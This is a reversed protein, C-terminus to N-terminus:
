KSIYFRCDSLPEKANNFGGGQNGVIVRWQIASVGDQDFAAKTDYGSLRSTIFTRKRSNSRRYCKTPAKNVKPPPLIFKAALQFSKTIWKLSQQCVCRSAENHRLM